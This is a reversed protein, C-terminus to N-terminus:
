VQNKICCPHHFIKEGDRNYKNLEVLEVIVRKSINRIRQNLDIIKM